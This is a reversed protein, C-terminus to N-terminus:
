NRTSTPFLDSLTIAERDPWLVYWDFGGTWRELANKMWAHTIGYKPQKSAYTEAPLRSSRISATLDDLQQQSFGPKFARLELSSSANSMDLKVVSASLSRSSLEM